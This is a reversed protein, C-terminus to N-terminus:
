GCTSPRLRTTSYMKISKNERDVREPRQTSHTCHTNLLAGRLLVTGLLVALFVCLDKIKLRCMHFM